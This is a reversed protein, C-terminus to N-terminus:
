LPWKNGEAHAPAPMLLQPPPVYFATKAGPFGSWRRTSVGDMLGWLAGSESRSQRQVWTSRWLSSLRLHQWLFLCKSTPSVPPPHPARSHERRRQSEPSSFPRRPTTAEGLHCTDKGWLVDRLGTIQGAWVCSSGQFGLKASSEACLKRPCLLPGLFRLPSPPCKTMAEQLVCLVARAQWPSGMHLLTPSVQSLCTFISFSGDAGRVRNWQGSPCRGPDGPEEWTSKNLSAHSQKSPLECTKGWLRLDPHRRGKVATCGWTRGSKEVTFHPYYCERCM